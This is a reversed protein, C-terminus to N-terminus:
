PGERTRICQVPSHIIAHDTRRELRFDPGRIRPSAKELDPGGELAASEPVLVVEPDEDPVDEVRGGAKHM